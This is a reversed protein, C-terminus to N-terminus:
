LRPQWLGQHEKAQPRVLGRQKQTLGALGSPDWLVWQM